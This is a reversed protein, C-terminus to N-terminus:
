ETKGYITEVEYNMLKDYIKKPLKEKYKQAMSSFERSLIINRIEVLEEKSDSYAIAKGFLRIEYLGNAKGTANINVSLGNNIARGLKCLTSNITTPLFCSMEPSMLQNNLSYLKHSLEMKEGVIEYYNNEYWKNFNEFERWEDCLIGAQNKANGKDIQILRSWIKYAPTHSINKTKDRYAKSAKPLTSKYEPCEGYVTFGMANWDIGNKAIM